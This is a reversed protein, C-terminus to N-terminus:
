LIRRRKLRLQAQEPQEREIAISALHTIAFALACWRGVLLDLDFWCV